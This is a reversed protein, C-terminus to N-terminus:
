SKRRHNFKAKIRDAAVFRPRYEMYWWPARVVMDKFDSFYKPSLYIMYPIGFSKMSMLHIFMGIIGFIYGYLGLISSLLLLILRMVILGEIMTPIIYSSIGTIAVIVIMPASILKARVAADGLVLAGVISVAQGIYKPLRVGAERLIEFTLLMLMAEVVTPFPIGQRAQYIGIVLPTPIMQQHFATLSIYIAPVSTALFFAIWRLMRNISSFIFGNYYDENIQFYEIFLFPLTLVEPSGDIFLAIRGDLIKNAVTDPRETYGITRFPSLPEDKILEEIYGSDIIGDIEISELRKKLEVVIEGKAVGNLYGICVRTNSRKGIEMFELKLDETKLKRRVMSINTIISENFGERPGRVITESQPESINRVPFGKTNLIIAYSVGDIFLITDGYLMDKIIKDVKNEKKVEGIQVVKCILYDVLEDISIEEDWIFNALSPLVMDDLIANDAMGDTFFLLFNLNSNKNNVWRKIITSDNKFKDNILMECDKISNSIVEDSM